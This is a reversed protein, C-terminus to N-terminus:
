TATGYVNNQQSVLRVSRDTNSKADYIWITPGTYVEQWQQLDKLRHGPSIRKTGVPPSPAPRIDVDNLLRLAKINSINEFEAKKDVPDLIKVLVGPEDDEDDDDEGENKDADMDVDKAPQKDAAM